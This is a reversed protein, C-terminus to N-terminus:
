SFVDLFRGGSSYWGDGFDKCWLIEARMAVIHGSPLPLTIVVEGHALPMLHVLGIGTASVERAFASFCITNTEPLGVTVPCFYPVRRLARRDWEPADLIEQLASMLRDEAASAFSALQQNM